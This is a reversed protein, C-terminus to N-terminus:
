KEAKKRYNFIAYGYYSKNIGGGVKSGKRIMGKGEGVNEEEIEIELNNNNNNMRSPNSM